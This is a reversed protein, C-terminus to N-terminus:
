NHTFQVFYSDPQPMQPLSTNKRTVPDFDTEISSIPFSTTGILVFTSVFTKNKNLVFIQLYCSM